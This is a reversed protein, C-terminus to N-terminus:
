PIATAVYTERAKEGLAWGLRSLDQRYIIKPTGDSTDFIFKVRRYGRGFPGVAAIDATFQYSHTTVYDGRALARIASSTNGLADVLWAVSTLNDPNQGRYTILSQATGSATNEDLGAGALLATLVDIGATNVDVRGRIYANTSTTVDDSIRAFDSSSMGFTRCQVCFALLGAYGQRPRQAVLQAALSSANGVGADEFLTQLGQPRATSVNTLSTGDSHFNPERTYVTTYELLGRNIESSGTSNTENADLVGNRNLDDGVLLAMSSGYVLRLEDVTEFPAEKEQYGLQAYDLAYAGSSNTNRWDVIAQAFDLPMDPLYSLVNTNVTNLNLKSGEDILAFYPEPSPTGSPDRGLLWFRADGVPVAAAAYLNTAPVAGNTAYLALVSSVYRSAGEIAQDTALGSARNDSARLEYTMSNAFYLAIGVLGICVWLVIILVSGRQNQSCEVNLASREVDLAHGGQAPKPTRHQINFTSHQIKM